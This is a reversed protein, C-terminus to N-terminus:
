QQGVRDRVSFGDVSIVPRQQLVIQNSRPTDYEIDVYNTLAFRRGTYNEIADTARNIQRIILNDSSTDSADIGLSEKVDAVSCLAYSVLESM